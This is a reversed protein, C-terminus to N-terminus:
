FHLPFNRTSSFATSKVDNQGILPTIALVTILPITRIGESLKTLHSYIRQLDHITFSKM